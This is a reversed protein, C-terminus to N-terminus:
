VGGITLSMFGFDNLDLDFTNKCHELSELIQLLLKELMNLVNM